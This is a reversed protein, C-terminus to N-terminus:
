TGRAYTKNRRTEEKKERKKKPQFCQKRRPMCLMSNKGKQKDIPLIKPKSPNPNSHFFSLSLIPMKYQHCPIYQLHLNYRTGHITTDPPMPPQVTRTITSYYLVLHDQFRCAVCTMNKRKYAHHHQNYLHDSPVHLSPGTVSCSRCAAGDWGIIRRRPLLLRPLQLLSCPGRPFRRNWRPPQTGEPRLM